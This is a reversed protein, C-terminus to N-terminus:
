ETKVPSTTIYTSINGKFTLLQEFTAHAKMINALRSIVAVNGPVYGRTTDIRDLSPSNDNAGGRQQQLPIGLLPCVKPIVIDEVTITFAIGKAEARKKSRKFMEKEPYKLRRQHEVERNSTKWAKQSRKEQMAKRNRLRKCDRCEHELGTKGSKYKRTAFEEDPKDQECRKCYKM